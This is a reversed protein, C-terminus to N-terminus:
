RGAKVPEEPAVILELGDRDLVCVSGGVQLPGEASRVRWWAGDLRVRGAGGQAQRVVVRRGLLGESGVMSPARWTRWAAVALWGGAAVVIVTLVVVVARM